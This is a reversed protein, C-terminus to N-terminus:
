SMAEGLDISDPNRSSHYILLFTIQRDTVKYIIIYNKQYVARRYAHEPTPKGSYEVFMYPNLPIVDTIFNILDTSLKRGQKPNIENFFEQIAALQSIFLNTLVVERGEVIM